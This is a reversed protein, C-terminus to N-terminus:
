INLDSNHKNRDNYWAKLVINLVSPSQTNCVIIVASENLFNAAHKPQHRQFKRRFEKEETLFLEEVTCSHM